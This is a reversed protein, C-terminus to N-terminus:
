AETDSAILTSTPMAADTFAFLTSNLTNNLFGLRNCFLYRSGGQIESFLKAIVLRFLASLICTKRASDHSPGARNLRLEGGSFQSSENFFPLNIM